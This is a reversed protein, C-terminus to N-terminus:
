RRGVGEYDFGLRRMAAADLLNRTDVFHSGRMLEPVRGFDYHRFDDWETMLVVVDADTAADYADACVDGATLM